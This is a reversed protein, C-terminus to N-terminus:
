PPPAALREQVYRLLGRCARECQDLVEEFGRDGGYYPDPVDLEGAAAAAADFSRLLRLEAQGGSRRQVDRVFALHSHDIALVLAFSRLDEPVLQRARHDITLGRRKAAARSRPDAPEGVYWAGTGASDLRVRQALGAEDLLARMVVEATPSRCINGSCVFCLGLPAAGPKSSSV